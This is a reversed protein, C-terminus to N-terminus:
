VKGSCATSTVLQAGNGEVPPLVQKKKGLEQIAEPTSSHKNLFAECLDPQGETSDDNLLTKLSLEKKKGGLMDGGIGSGAMGGLAGGAAGAIPVLPAALGGTLGAAMGGAATGAMTGLGSGAMTGLGGGVAGEIPKERTIGEELAGGAPGFAGGLGATEVQLKKKYM